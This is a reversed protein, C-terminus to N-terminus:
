EHAPAGKPNSKRKQYLDTLLVEVPYYPYQSRLSESEKKVFANLSLSWDMKKMLDELDHHIAEDDKQAKKALIQASTQKFIPDIQMERIFAKVEPSTFVIGLRDATESLLENANQNWNSNLCGFYAKPMPVLGDSFFHYQTIEAIPASECEQHLQHIRDDAQVDMGSLLLRHFEQVETKVSEYSHQALFQQRQDTYDKTSLTDNKKRGQVSRYVEDFAVALRSEYCAKSGQLHCSLIMKRFQVKELAESLPSVSAPARYAVREKQYDIWAQDDTRKSIVSSTCAQVLLAIGATSFLISFRFTLKDAMM